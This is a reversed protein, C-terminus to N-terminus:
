ECQSPIKENSKLGIETAKERIEEYTERVAPESRGIIDIDDADAVVQREKDLLIVSMDVCFERIVKNLAIDFHSCDM